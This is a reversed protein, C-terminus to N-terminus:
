KKLRLTHMIISFSFSLTFILNQPGDVLWPCPRTEPAYYAILANAKAAINEKTFGFYAYMPVRPLNALGTLASTLMHM